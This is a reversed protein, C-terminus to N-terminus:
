IRRFVFSSCCTRIITPRTDLSFHRNELAEVRRAIVPIDIFLDNEPQAEHMHCARVLTFLDLPYADRMKGLSSADTFTSSKEFYRRLGTMSAGPSQMLPNMCIQSTFLRKRPNKLLHLWDSIWFPCMSTVTEMLQGGDCGSCCITVRLKAFCENFDSTGGEDGDVRLFVIRVRNDASIAREIAEDLVRRITPSATENAASM